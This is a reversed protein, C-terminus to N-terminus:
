RAIMMIQLVLVWWYLCRHSVNIAMSVPRHTFVSSKNYHSRLKRLVLKDRGQPIFTWCSHLTDWEHLNFFNGNLSLWESLKEIRFCKTDWSAFFMITHVTSPGLNWTGEIQFFFLTLFSFGVRAHWTCTLYRLWREVGICARSTCELGNVQKSHSIMIAETAISRQLKM